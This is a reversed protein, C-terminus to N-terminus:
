QNSLERRGCFLPRIPNNIINISDSGKRKVTVIGPVYRQSIRTAQLPLVAVFRDVALWCATEHLLDHVENELDDRFFLESSPQPRGLADPVGARYELFFCPQFVTAARFVVM